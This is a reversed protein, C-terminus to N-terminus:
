LASVLSIKVSTQRPLNGSQASHCLICDQRLAYCGVHAGDHSGCKVVEAPLGGHRIRCSCCYYQCCQACSLLEQLAEWAHLLSDHCRNAAQCAACTIVTPLAAEDTSQCALLPCPTEAAHTCPWFLESACDEVDQECIHTTCNSRGLYLLCSSQCKAPKEQHGAYAHGCQQAM